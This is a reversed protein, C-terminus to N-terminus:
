NKFIHIQSFNNKIIIVIISRPPKLTTEPDNLVWKYRHTLKLLLVKHNYWYLVPNIGSNAWGIWISIRFLYHFKEDDVLARLCHLVAFPTWSIVFCLSLVTCTSTLRIERRKINQCILISRRRITSLPSNFWRQRERKLTNIGVSM